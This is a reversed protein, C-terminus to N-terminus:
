GIRAPSAVAAPPIPFRLAFRTGRGEETRVQVEGGHADVIRKVVALGLGSGTAKTTFFPEFIRAVVDGPIGAGTDEIEVLAAAGDLRARVTLRGGRPMAQVANAAVNLLAQRVQRGDLQVPPLGPDLDRVVEVTTHQQALAAAVAEEALRDLREPRLQPPAPRAFDLLDGVIRNLRDAEEGVIDLLVLADGEPRLMRRLSGLSNFIVGLPNRVEHAVVASLEGLAALREQRLLKEQAQQLDALAALARAHARANDVAVALQNSVATARQVEAATFRRTRRSEVIVAAGIAKDRVLLPLMLGSRMGSLARLSQNTRADGSADDLLVPERREMCLATAGHAPDYPVRLGLLPQNPGSVAQVVLEGADEDLLTLYAESADVMRALNRVGATLVQGLELTEVLTRGVDQLLSLEEARRRTESYLRANDVAVGLQSAIAVARALEAQSFRHGPGPAAVLAVGLPQDRVLLPVALVAQPRGGPGEVRGTAPARTALADRALSPADLPVGERGLPEGRVAARRLVGARHDALLVTCGDSGVTGKLHEAGLELVRDLDLSSSVVRAVDIIASLEALRRRGEAHLEASERAM